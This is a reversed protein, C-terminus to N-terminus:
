GIYLYDYHILPKENKKGCLATATTSDYQTIGYGLHTKNQTQIELVDGKEFSGTIQVVGIPLISIISKTRLLQETCTNVMLTGRVTQESHAIRRKVSSLKKKPPFFTGTPINHMIDELTNAHMGNAIHTAIGTRALKKAIRLKTHMGGRGTASRKTHVYSDVDIDVDTDVDIVPVVSSTPDDPDGNLVGDISTLLVLADANLQSAVLGALEDNDTFILESVAIVDNENMIPIVGSHLLNQLCNRMNFYHQRDRFDEKTALVQACTLTHASFLEAYHTMLAIQGVASYAQKQVIEHASNDITLLGKGTAVAGSSVLVIEVGETHLKAIQAVLNSLVKHNVSQKRTIVASGVKVVIRKYM